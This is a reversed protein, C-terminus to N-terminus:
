PAHKPVKMSVSTLKEDANQRVESHISSNRLIIFAVTFVAVILVVMVVYFTIPIDSSVEGM